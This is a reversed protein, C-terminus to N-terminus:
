RRLFLKMEHAVEAAHTWHLWHGSDKFAKYSSTSSQDLADLYDQTFFQVRKRAGYLFLQPVDKTYPVSTLSMPGGLFPVYLQLYPYLMHVKTDSAAFPLETQDFPSIL